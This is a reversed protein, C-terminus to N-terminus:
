KASRAQGAGLVLNYGTQWYPSDPGICHAERHGEGAGHLHWVSCHACWVRWRMRRGPMLVVAEATLVPAEPDICDFDNIPVKM